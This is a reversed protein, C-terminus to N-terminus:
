DGLVKALAALFRANEEKLGITVRLHNPMGYNDIPRVIVGERLLADYISRAPQEMDICIFNGLSPLYHIGLSDFGEILQQMGAKNIELSREVHRSDHLAAMATQMAIANVNFPQRVRNLLDAIQPHSIGYGIRLGALGHAKSFTRTVVLNPVESVWISANPYDAAQAYEFYAEDLVLIVHGPLSEILERLESATGWTGTPNNPNAVFMVRTRETVARAMGRLDHAYNDAPVVVAKGGVAQTVLPYVAFAHESFVVEDGPGVFTRAILELVDNSGNGLTIQDARIGHHEALEARLAHGSGDPYRGIDPLDMLSARAAEGPGLPNENSALKIIDDLGLERKLEEIPKGPHYPTLGAVGPVALHSFDCDLWDVRGGTEKNVIWEKSM